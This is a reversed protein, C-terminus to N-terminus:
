DARPQPTLQLREATLHSDSYQSSGGELASTGGPPSWPPLSTLFHALAPNLGSCPSPVPPAPLPVPPPAGASSYPPRLSPSTLPSDQLHRFTCTSPTSPTAVSCLLMKTPTESGSTRLWTWASLSEWTHPAKRAPLPVGLVRDAAGRFPLGTATSYSSTGKHTNTNYQKIEGLCSTRAHPPPTLMQVICPLTSNFFIIM